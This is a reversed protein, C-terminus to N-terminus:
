QRVIRRLWDFGEIVRLDGIQVKFVVEMRRVV